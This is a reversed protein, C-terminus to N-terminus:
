AAPEELIRLEVHLGPTRLRESLGAAGNRGQPDPEVAITLTDIYDPVKDALAPM